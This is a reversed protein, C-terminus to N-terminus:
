PTAPTSASRAPRRAAPRAGRHPVAGSRRAVAVGRARFAGARRPGSAPGHAGERRLLQHPLGRAAAREPALEAWADLLSQPIAPWPRGTEPHNPQYRYGAEDSVWGLPGCNSMRVSFPKGTRPMRARYLPAQELVARIADRLAEQAARDLYGPFYAVGPAVAISVPAM